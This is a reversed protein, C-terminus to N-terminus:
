QGMIEADHRIIEAAAERRISQLCDLLKKPDLSDVYHDGHINGPHGGATLVIVEIRPVVARLQAVLNEGEADSAIDACLVVGDVNPFRQLTDIAEEPDYATITNFKATEIVLKRTSIHGAYERDVLLFCPRDM